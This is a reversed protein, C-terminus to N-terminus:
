IKINASINQSFYRNKNAKQKIYNYFNSKKEKNDNLVENFFRLSNYCQININNMIKESFIKKKVM